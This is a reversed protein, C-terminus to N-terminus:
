DDDELHATDNLCVLHGGGPQMALRTIGCASVEMLVVQSWALGLARAIIRRIPGGHAFALVSGEAPLGATWEDLRAAFHAFAEGRPPTEREPAGIWRRFREGDQSLCEDYTRGEWRGFDMERLRPDPAGGGACALSATETCRALDSAVVADFRERGLREGLRRAERRGRKSLPADTRGQYRRQENLATTGHRVLTLRLM